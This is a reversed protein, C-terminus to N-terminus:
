WKPGPNQRQFEGERQLADGIAQGIKHVVEQDPCNLLVTLSGGGASIIEKVFGACNHPLVGWFWKDAMLQVLKMYAGAANIIKADLRRIETKGNEQLYRMFNADGRMFKPYAWVGFLETVGQGAVHFYWSNASSTGTCLIM